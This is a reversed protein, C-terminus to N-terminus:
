NSGSEPTGNRSRLNYRSNSIEYLTHKHRRPLINSYLNINEKIDSNSLFSKNNLSNNSINSEYSYRNEKISKSENELQIDTSNLLNFKSKLNELKELVNETKKSLERLLANNKEELDQYCYVKYAFVACSLCMFVYRSYWVCSYVYSYLVDVHPEDQIYTIFSCLFREIIFNAFMLLFLYLRATNTRKMSTLVFVILITSVYFFISDIWSIEGIIWTQMRSLSKTMVNLIERHANVSVYLDELVEELFKGHKLM